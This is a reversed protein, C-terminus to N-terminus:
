LLGSLDSLRLQRAIEVSAELNTNLATEEIDSGKTAKASNIDISVFAETHDIVISGGSPLRILREHATEIQNEIQFRNFLPVKDQYFKVRDFM